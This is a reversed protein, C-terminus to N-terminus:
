FDVFYQNFKALLFFYPYDVIPYLGAFIMKVPTGCRCKIFVVVYYQCLKISEQAMDDILVLVQFILQKIFTLMSWIYLLFIAELLNVVNFIHPVM